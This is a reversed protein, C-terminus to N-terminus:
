KVVINVMKNKITIVKIIQKGLIQKMVNENYLAHDELVDEPTDYDVEM